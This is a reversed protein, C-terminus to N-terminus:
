KDIREYTIIKCKKGDIVCKNKILHCCNRSSNSYKPNMFVAVVVKDDHRCMEIKKKFKM